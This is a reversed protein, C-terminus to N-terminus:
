HALQCTEGCYWAQKCGKCKMIGAGSCSPNSCHSNAELYAIQEASAGFYRLISAATSYPYDRSLAHTDAGAEVLWKVIEEHKKVSAAILPTIGINNRQSNSAGFKLLVCVVALHGKSFLLYLPTCGLHDLSNVDAGLEEVLYRVSDHNGLGVAAVLATFGREGHGNVIEGLETVLYFLLDFTAGTRAAQFLPEVTRV